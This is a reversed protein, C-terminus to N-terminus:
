KGSTDYAIRSSVKARTFGTNVMSISMNRSYFFVVRVHFEGGYSVPFWLGDDFKEYSVAFGLGKIDTGLLVKVAVPIHTAFRTSVLLPQCEGVDILAEGKWDADEEHPKPRFSIRYINRGRYVDKGELTFIYKAQESATLPFLDHGIGDKSEKDGTMDNVMDQILDGDVDINKYQKGPEDYSIFQGNREYKGEFHALKKEIGGPTPTVVFELKEERALKGNTRHFRAVVKQNYIYARRLDQARTQNEAVRAMIQGVSPDQALAFPLISLLAVPLLNM